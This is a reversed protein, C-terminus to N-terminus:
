FAITVSIRLAQPMITRIFAQRYNMGIAYSPRGSGKLYLLLQLEFQRQQMLVLILLFHLLRQRFLSWLLVSKLYDM